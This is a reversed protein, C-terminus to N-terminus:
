ISQGKEARERYKAADKFMVEDKGKKVFIPFDVWVRPLEEVVHWNTLVLRKRADILSGSGRGISQLVQNGIRKTEIAHIVVTSRVKKKYVQVSLEDEARAGGAAACFLGALLTLGGVRVAIRKM